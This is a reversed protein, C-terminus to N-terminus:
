LSCQYWTLPTKSTPSLNSAGSPLTAFEASSPRSCFYKKCDFKQAILKSGIIKGEKYLLSGESKEKLFIHCFITIIFPYLCGFIFTYFFIAKLSPKLYYFFVKM